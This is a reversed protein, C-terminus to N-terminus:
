QNEEDICEKEDLIDRRRQCLINVVTHTQWEIELRPIRTIIRLNNRGHRCELLRTWRHTYLIEGFFLRKLDELLPILLEDPNDFPVLLIGEWRRDNDFIDWESLIRLNIRSHFSKFPNDLIILLAGLFWKNIILGLVFSDLSEDIDKQRNPITDIPDDTEKNEWHKDDDIITDPIEDEEVPILDLDDPQNPSFIDEDVSRKRNLAEEICEGRICETSWYEDVQDFIDIEWEDGIKREKDIPEKDEIAIDEQDLQCNDRDHPNQASEERWASKDTLSFKGLIYVM